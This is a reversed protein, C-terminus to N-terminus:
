KPGLRLAGDLRLVCGNLMNNELVHCVLSAFEDAEGFRHPFPLQESLSLRVKEPALQMMPTNFVGPAITVVRVGHQGLERAM